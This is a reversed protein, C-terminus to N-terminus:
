SIQFRDVIVYQPDAAKSIIIRGSKLEMGVIPVMLESSHEVEQFTCDKPREVRFKVQRNFSEVISIRFCPASGSVMARNPQAILPSVREAALQMLGDRSLSCRIGNLISKELIGHLYINLGKGENEKGEGLFEVSVNIV